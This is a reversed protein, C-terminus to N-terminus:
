EGFLATKVLNSVKDSMDAVYVQSVAMLQMLADGSNEAVVCLVGVDGFRTRRGKIAAPCVGDSRIIIQGVKDASGLSADIAIFVAGQHVARIFSLWREMNKGNVCCDETGYVFAPVGQQKLRTGVMPGLADGTIAITGFCVIVIEPKTPAIGAIGKRQGAPRKNGSSALADRILKSAPSPGEDEVPKGAPSALADKILKREINDKSKRM